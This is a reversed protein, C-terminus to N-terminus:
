QGPIGAASATSRPFVEAVPVFDQNHIGSDYGNGYGSYKGGPQMDAAMAGSCYRRVVGTYGEPITVGNTVAPYFGADDVVIGTQPSGNTTLAFLEKGTVTIRSKHVYLDASFDPCVEAASTSLLLYGFPAIVFGTTVRSFHDTNAFDCVLKWGSGTNRYLRFGSGQLDVAKSGSNYFELFEVSAGLDKYEPCIQSFLVPEAASPLATTTFYVSRSSGLVGARNRIGSVYYQYLCEPNLPGGTKVSATTSFGSELAELYCYEGNGFLLISLADRDIEQSFVLTITGEGPSVSSDGSAPWSRLLVPLGDAASAATRFNTQLSYLSGNDSSATLSLTYRTDPLLTGPDLRYRYMDPQLVASLSVCSGDAGQLLAQSALTWGASPSIYLVPNDASVSQAWGACEVVLEPSVAETGSDEEPVCGTFCVLVLFFIKKMFVEKEEKETVRLAFVTGQKKEFRQGCPPFPTDKRYSFILLPTIRHSFYSAASGQQEQQKQCQDAASERRYWEGPEPKGYFVPM